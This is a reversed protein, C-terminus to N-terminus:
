MSSSCNAGRRVRLNQEDLHPDLLERLAFRRAMLRDRSIQTPSAMCLATIIALIAMLLIIANIRAM